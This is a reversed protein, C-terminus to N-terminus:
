KQQTKLFFSIDQSKLNVLTLENQLIVSFFDKGLNFKKSIKEEFIKRTAGPYVTSELIITQYKVLYPEIINFAETIFSM